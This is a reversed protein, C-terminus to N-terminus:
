WQGKTRRHRPSKITGSTTAKRGNNPTADGPTYSPVDRTGPAHAHTPRQREAEAHKRAALLSHERRNGGRWGAAQCTPSCYYRLRCASCRLMPRDGGRPRATRRRPQRVDPGTGPARLLRIIAPVVALLNELVGDLYPEVNLCPHTNKRTGVPHSYGLLWSADKKGISFPVSPRLALHFSHLEPESM